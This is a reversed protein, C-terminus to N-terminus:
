WEAEEDEEDEDKGLSHINTIIKSHVSLVFIVKIVCVM